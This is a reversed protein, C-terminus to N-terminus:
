IMFFSFCNLLGLILNVLFAIFLLVSFVSIVEFNRYIARGFRISRRMVISTLTARAKDHFDIDCARLTSYRTLCHWVAQGYRPWRMYMLIIIVLEIIAIICGDM